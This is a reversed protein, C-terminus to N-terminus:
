TISSGRRTPLSPTLCARATSRSSSGRCAGTAVSTACRNSASAGFAFDAYDVYYWANPHAALYAARSSDDAGAALRRVTGLLTVRGNALPDSHGTEAVLRSARLDMELNKTHEAMLSIFFVPDAADMAFTVFSGYPFGAPQRAITCLTGTRLGGVLTRSREGHTRTPVDPDCLPPEVDGGPLFHDNRGL